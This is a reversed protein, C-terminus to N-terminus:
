EFMDNLITLPSHMHPSIVVSYVPVDGLRSAPKSALSCNKLGLLCSQEKGNYRTLRLGEVM